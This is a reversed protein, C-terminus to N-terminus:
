RHHSIVFSQRLAAVASGTFLAGLVLGFAPLVPGSYFVSLAGLAAAAGAALPLIRTVGFLAVAVGQALFTAGLLAMLGALAASTEAGAPLHPAVLHGVLVQFGFIVAAHTVLAVFFRRTVSRRFAEVDVYRRLDARGENRLHVLLYEAVGLVVVLTAMAVAVASDFGVAAPLWLALVGSFAGHAAHPLTARPTALLPATSASRAQCARWAVPVTLVLSLVGIVSGWITHDGSALRIAGAIAGPLLVGVLVLEHRRLILVATTTMVCLQGFVAAAISPSTAGTAALTASVPTAVLVTAVLSRRLFWTEADRGLGTQQHAVYSVAQVAAWAAILSGALSLAEAGSLQAPLLAALAVGPLLFVIGRLLLARAPRPASIGLRQADASSGPGTRSPVGAAAPRARGRARERGTTVLAESLEFLDRYGALRADRDTFGQSELLAVLELAQVVRGALVRAEAEM